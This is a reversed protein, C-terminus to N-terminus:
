CLLILHDYRLRPFSARVWIFSFIYALLKIFLFQSVGGFFLVINLFCIVLMNSYEALFFLAFGISSYEVNYGAVLEAEAEPLDFPARNTEALSALFSIFVFPLLAPALYCDEQFDTIVALNASGTILVIFLIIFGLILEYSVMQSVTRLAGLFAYKNNSSWGALVICFVGLTSLALVYLASINSVVLSEGYVLPIFSWTVLSLTFVCVPASIFLGYSINKPLITEKLVLKIGDAVPQLLGFFGVVNPGKRRQMAAM